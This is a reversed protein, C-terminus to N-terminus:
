NWVGKITTTCWSPKQCAWFNGSRLKLYMTAKIRNLDDEELAISFNRTDRRDALYGDKYMRQLQTVSLSKLLVNLVHQKLVKLQDDTFQKENLHFCCFIIFM